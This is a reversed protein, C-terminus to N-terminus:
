RARSLEVVIPLLDINSRPVSHAVAAGRTAIIFPVGATRMPAPLVCEHSAYPENKCWLESRLHHDSTIVLTFDDGFPARDLRDVVRSVLAEARELNAAYADALRLEGSSSPPHPTLLHAYLLGGRSWFPARFLEEEVGHIFEAGLTDYGARDCGLEAGFLNRLPLACVFTTLLPEAFDREQNVCHRLGQIACYRHYAGVIDVDDRVVDIRAFDVVRNQGCVASSTCPRAGPLAFGSFMAPIVDITDHGISPVESSEVQLGHRRLAAVIDQDAGASLEDLLLVIVPRHRPGADRLLHIHPALVSVVVFVSLTGILTAALLAARLRPWIAGLRAAVLAALALGVSAVLVRAYANLVVNSILFHRFQVWLLFLFIALLATRSLFAFTRPRIVCASAYGALVLLLSMVLSIFISATARPDAHYYFGVIWPVRSLFFVIGFVWLDGHPFRGSPAGAPRTVATEEDDPTAHPTLRAPAQM